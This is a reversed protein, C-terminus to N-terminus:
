DIVIEDVFIFAPFGEGFHSKPLNGITHAVVKIYQYPKAVKVTAREIMAEYNLPDQIPEVEGIKEFTNGDISGYFQISKPKVIWSRSEQLYNLGVSNLVKIEKLDIIAALSDVQYGQWDGKKWDKLGFVGDILGNKGGATYQSSYRTLIQIDYKNARKVFDAEVVSSKLNDRVAYYVLKSTQNIVIPHKYLQFKEDEIAYYISDNPNFGCLSIDLRNEFVKKPIQHYPAEILENASVVFPEMLKEFGLTRLTEKDTSKTITRSTGDELHIIAKEFYPRVTEWRPINPIVPYIGLASLVYWASMQGCDENGILGDPENLYFENLIQHVIRETKEPKGVFNYLYAAHHSPENGHAYQGILGTIDVQTRGVTKSSVSFLEDLKKEFGVKGGHQEILGQINQPVYFSYQWSNAETYNNDVERGEFPILWGGNLRPRMLKTEPDLLNRWAESRKLFKQYIEKEGLKLAMQAICWDDYAYELTKSVSEPEDEIAIYNKRKYTELGLVNREASAIAAKLALQYDFKLGKAMGDALVPVAHYGIMCDTENSALEWVPLRGGQDYQALFTQIFDTARKKDILTMLPHYARYTDWLSFVTYYDFGEAVHLKMDRGRYRGDVDQAINPQIMTHYLATYFITAKNLESTTIEIKSLEKEWLQNVALYAKQFDWHPIEAKNKMAGETGTFSFALKVLVEKNKKLELDFAVLLDSGEFGKKNSSGRLVKLQVPQNFELIAYAHQNRAWAESIRTLKFTTKSLQEIRAFTAKDRHNFDMLFRTKKQEEFSYKHFGVRTSATLEVKVKPENLEVSYYGAIASEKAHSFTSAYEDPSYNGQIKHTPMLHFDGYDTVGTGNLHTHSFGYIKSDSYHYGSCGEWSNDIRTDPSLQVMGFPATAGPFTHGTGSTGIMPNVFQVFQKQSFVVTSVFFIMLLLVKSM